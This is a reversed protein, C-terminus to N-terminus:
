LVRVSYRQRPPLSQGGGGRGGLAGPTGVKSQMESVRSYTQEELAAMEDEAAARAAEAARRAAEAAAVRADARARIEDIERRAEAPRSGSARPAMGPGSGGFGDAAGNRARGEGPGEGGSASGASDSLRRAGAGPHRPSVHGTLVSPPVLRTWNTRSPPPPPSAGGEQWMDDVEDRLGDGWDSAWGPPAEGYGARSWGASSVSGPGAHRPNPPRAFSPRAPSAHSPSAAALPHPTRAPLSHTPRLGTGALDLAAPQNQPARPLEHSRSFLAPSASPRQKPHLYLPTSAIDSSHLSGRLTQTSLVSSYEDNKESRFRLVLSPAAWAARELLLALEEKSILAPVLQGNVALLQDGPAAGQNLM